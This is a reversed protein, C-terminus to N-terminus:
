ILPYGEELPEERMDKTSTTVYGTWTMVKLSRKVNIGTSVNSKKVSKM